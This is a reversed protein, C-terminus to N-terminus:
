LPQIRRGGARRLTLRRGVLSSRQEKLGKEAMVLLRVLHGGSAARHRSWDAQSGVSSRCPLHAREHETPPPANMMRLMGPGGTRLFRWVLVAALALFAINLFTTYNWTIEAEVVRASREPPV